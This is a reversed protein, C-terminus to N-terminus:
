GGIADSLQTFLLISRDYRRGHSDNGIETRVYIMGNEWNAEEGEQRASLVVFYRREANENGESGM